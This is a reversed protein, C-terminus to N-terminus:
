YGVGVKKAWARAAKLNESSTEKDWDMPILKIKEAPPMFKRENEPVKVGPRGYVLSVGTEAIRNTGPISRTYDIFLKATNPHPAGAFIVPSYPAMVQGEKPWCIGAEVGNENLRIAYKARSTLAIPYEGSELWQEAQLGKTWFVLKNKGLKIFFDEGLVKRLGIVWSASQNSVSANSSAILGSLRPDTFNWWSTPHFDKIGRKALEKVNWVPTSPNGDSVWYGPMSNGAENSFTYEKYYPSDYRMLHGQKILDMYWDWAPMHAIDVPPTRGAKLVQDIRGIMETSVGLTFIFKTESLGYYEKFGAQIHDAHGPEFWNSTWVLANEKRAGELLAQVRARETSDKADRLAPIDASYSVTGLFLILSITCLTTVAKDHKM